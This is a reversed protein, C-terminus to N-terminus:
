GVQADGLMFTRSAVRPLLCNLSLAAQTVVCLSGFYPRFVMFIIRLEAPIEPL